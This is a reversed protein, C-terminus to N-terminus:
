RNEIKISCFNENSFVLEQPVQKSCCEAKISSWAIEESAKPFYESPMFRSEGTEKAIKNNDWAKWSALKL